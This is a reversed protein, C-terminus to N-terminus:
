DLSRTGPGTTVHIFGPAAAGKHGSRCAKLVSAAASQDFHETTLAMVAGGFGGGTLRAGIVGRDRFTSLIEVLTDLEPISNEFLDRSSAHSAFLLDGVMALDGKELAAVCERVRLNERIVHEARRRIDSGAELLGLAEVPAQALHEIGPRSERIIRLAERCESHRCAYMSDVLSHKLNTNFVWFHLGHPLPVTQFDTIACDIRVLHDPEGFCSVAQDLMGCPVGVFNNEARQALLVKCRRDLEIGQLRCVGELTALEIAASSSLGAGTPLDSSFSIEMGHDPGYGAAQLESLIGLPYNAWALPGEQKEMHDLDGRYAGQIGESSFVLRRDRRSRVRARVALNLSVGLVEGGNYDTHNGIFEIRGPSATRIERGAPQESM